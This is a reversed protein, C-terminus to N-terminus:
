SVQWDALKLGVVRSFERTNHTVLTLDHARAIAAIFLDNPGIPIGQRDLDARIMGYHSAAVDDFALSVFPFCFQELTQLNRAVQQSKRAGWTLEAKVVACLFIEDPIHRALQQVSLPRNKILAICTDTDLLFM